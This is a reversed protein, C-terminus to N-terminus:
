LPNSKLVYMGTITGDVTTPSFRGGILLALTGDPNMLFMDSHLKSMGPRCMLSSSAM